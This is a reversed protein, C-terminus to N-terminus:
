QGVPRGSVSRILDLLASPDVPNALATYAGDRLGKIESDEMTYGRIFIAKAQPDIQRFRDLATFGDIDAMKIDMLIVGYHKEPHNEM